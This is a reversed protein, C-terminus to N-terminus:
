RRGRRRRDAFLAAGVGGIMALALFGVTYVAAWFPSGGRILVGYVWEFLALSIAMVLVGQLLRKRYEPSPKVLGPGREGAARL